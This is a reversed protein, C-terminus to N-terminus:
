KVQKNEKEIEQLVKQFKKYHFQTPENSELKVIAYKIRLNAFKLQNQFFQIQLALYEESNKLCMLHTKLCKDDMEELSKIDKYFDEETNNEAFEQLSTTVHFLDRDNQIIAVNKKLTQYTLQIGYVAAFGKWAEKYLDPNLTKHDDIFKTLLEKASWQSKKRKKKEAVNDENQIESDDENENENENDVLSLSQFNLDDDSEEGTSKLSMPSVQFHIPQVLAVM